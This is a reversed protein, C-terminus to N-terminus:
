LGPLKGLLGLQLQLIEQPTVQEHKYGRGTTLNSLVVVLFHLYKLSLVASFM